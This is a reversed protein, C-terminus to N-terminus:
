VEYDLAVGHRHCQFHFVFFLKVRVVHLGRFGELDADKGVYICDYRGPGGKWRPTARILERHMGGIGSLDSPAYYVSTASHFVKVCLYEAIEPCLELQVDMGCIDANPHFQDYLFRRLYEVLRPQGIYAALHNITSPYHPALV